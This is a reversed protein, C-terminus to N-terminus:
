TISAVLPSQTYGSCKTKSTGTVLTLDPPEGAISSKYGITSLLIELPFDTATAIAVLQRYSPERGRDNEWHGVLGRSVGVADALQQQELDANKRAKRILEGLTWAVEYGNTATQTLAM